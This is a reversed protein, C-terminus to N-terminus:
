YAKQKKMPKKATASKAAALENVVYGLDAVPRNRDAQLLDLAKVVRDVGHGEPGAKDYAKRRTKYHVRKGRSAALAALADEIQQAEADSLDPHTMTVKGAHHTEVIGVDEEWSKPM